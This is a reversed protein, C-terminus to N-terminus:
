FHFLKRLDRVFLKRAILVQKERWAREASVTFRAAETKKDASETIVSGHKAVIRNAEFRASDLKVQLLRLQERLMSVARTRGQSEAECIKAVRTAINQGLQEQIEVAKDYQVKAVELEEPSTSSATTVLQLSLAFVSAIVFHFAKLTM